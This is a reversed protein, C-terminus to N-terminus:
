KKLLNNILSKIIVGKRNMLTNYFTKRPKYLKYFKLGNATRTRRIVGREWFGSYEAKSGLIYSCSAMSVEGYSLDSTRGTVNAIDEKSAFDSNSARWSYRVGRITKNYFRGTRNGRKIKSQVANKALDMQVIGTRYFVNPYYNKNAFKLVPNLAKYNEIGNQNM